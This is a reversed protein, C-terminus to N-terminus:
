VRQFSPIRNWRDQAALRLLPVRLLPAEPRRVESHLASAAQLVETHISSAVWAAEGLHVQPPLAEAEQVAGLVVVEEVALRCRRTHDTGAPRALLLGM